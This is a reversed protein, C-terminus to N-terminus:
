ALRNKCMVNMVRSLLVQVSYLLFTQLRFDVSHFIRISLELGILGFRSVWKSNVRDVLKLM